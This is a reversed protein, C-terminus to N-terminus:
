PGGGRGGGASAVRPPLEDPCLGAKAKRRERCSAASATGRRVLRVTEPRSAQTRQSRRGWLRLREPRSRRSGGRRQPRVAHGSSGNWRPSRRPRLFPRAIRAIPRDHRQLRRLLLRHPFRAPDGRRRARRPYGSATGASTVRACSGARGRRPPRRRARAHAGRRDHAHQYDGAGRRHARGPKNIIEAPIRIKGVDHLLATLEASAGSARPCASATPVRSALPLRGRSLPQGTYEDDAEIVDGLLFATGRYANGLELATTSEGGDSRPSSPSFPSCRCSSSSRSRSTTPWSRLRPARDAHPRPRRRVGVGDPARPREPRHRVRVVRPRGFRLLRLRVAALVAALLGALGVLGTGAGRRARRRAGRRRAIGRARHRRRAGAGSARPRSRLGGRERPSARAAVCLPVMAPPLLFLMPVFVLQTPIASGIGVEFEVKSAVAYAAILLVLLGVSPHRDGRSRRASPLGRGRPFALASASTVHSDRRALPASARARDSRSSRTATTISGGRGLCPCAAPCARHEGSARIPPRAARRSAPPRSGEESPHLLRRFPRWLEVLAALLSSRPMLRRTATNTRTM